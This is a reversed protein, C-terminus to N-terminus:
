MYNSEGINIHMLVLPKVDIVVKQHEVVHDDQFQESITVM